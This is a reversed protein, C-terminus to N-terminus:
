QPYEYENEYPNYVPQAGPDEYSYENEYPNYTLEKKGKTTEYRNEYPNYRLEVNPQSAGANPDNKNQAFAPGALLVLVILLRIM